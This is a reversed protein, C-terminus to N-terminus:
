SWANGIKSVHRMSYRMYRTTYLVVLLLRYVFVFISYYCLKNLYYCFLHYIIMDIIDKSVLILLVVLM